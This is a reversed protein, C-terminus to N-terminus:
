EDNSEVILVWDKEDPTKCSIFEGSKYEGLFINTGQRPDYWNAKIKKAKIKGTNIKVKRGSPIYAIIFKGYKDYGATAYNNQAYVGAGDVIIKSSPDPIIRYWPKSQFLTFYYKLSNGGPLQLYIRWNDPFNWMPTGYANGMGGSLVSWYAQKRVQVPSGWVDHEKEYTSEGLLFPKVPKKSYERFNIEYVDPQNKNWAKDFGRFYTYTMVVDLWNTNPWVDSSSHSSSPHYTMLQHPARSKIGLALHNIMERDEFPDIDGGMIWLINNYKAFRKGIYEGFARCKKAGNTSMYSKPGVAGKGGYGEGCCGAWLPAIAILFGMSDAQHVVWEVHDFYEKNVTSFDNPNAFPTQGDMNKEGKFATLMTQIVTFLKNKRDSLYDIVGANNVKTFLKWGTDGNYFFPKGNQDVLYRHSGSVKLPFKYAFVSIVWVIQVLILLFIKKM